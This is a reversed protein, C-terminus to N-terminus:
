FFMTVVIIVSLAFLELLLPPPPPFSLSPIHNSLHIDPSTPSSFSSLCSISLFTNNNLICWLHYICTVHVTNINIYMYGQTNIIIEKCFYSNDYIVVFTTIVAVCLLLM